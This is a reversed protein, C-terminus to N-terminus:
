HKKYVTIRGNMVRAEGIYEPTALPLGDESLEPTRADRSLQKILALLVTQPLAIDHVKFTKVQFESFGPRIVRLTGGMEMHEREGLLYGIPGLADRGLDATKVRARIYLREGVVAAQISDASSPLTKAFDKLIYAVLDGPAVNAFVPGNKRRLGDLAAEARRAGEATPTQWTAAQQAAHVPGFPAMQLWWDRSIWAVMALVLIMLLFLLCGIRRLCGMM